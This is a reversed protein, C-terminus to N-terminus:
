EKFKYEVKDKNILSIWVKIGVVGFKTIVHDTGYDINTSLTQLAIKGEKIFMSKARARGKIRGSIKIAIGSIYSSERKVLTMIMKLQRRINFKRSKMKKSLYRALILANSFPIKKKTKVFGLKINVKCGTAKTLIHILNTINLSNLINVRFFNKKLLVNIPTSSKISLDYLKILIQIRKHKRNIIPEDIIFNKKLFYNKIFKRLQIDEHLLNTYNSIVPTKEVYWKSSWTRNVGLRFGIPHTKQGM